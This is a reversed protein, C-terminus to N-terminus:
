RNFGSAVDEVTIVGKIDARKVSSQFTMKTTINEAIFAFKYHALLKILHLSEMQRPSDSRLVLFQTSNGAIYQQRCYQEFPVASNENQMQWEGVSAVGVISEEKILLVLHGCLFELTNSILRDGKHHAFRSLPNGSPTMATNKGSPTVATNEDMNESIANMDAIEVTQLPSSIPRQSADIKGITTICSSPLDEACELAAEGGASHSLNGDESGLVLRDLLKGIPIALPAFVISSIRLLKDLRLILDLRRPGTLISMPLIEGFVLVLGM